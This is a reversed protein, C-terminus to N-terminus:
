LFMTSCRYNIVQIDNKTISCLVIFNRFDHDKTKIGTAVCPCSGLIYLLNQTAGIYDQLNIQLTHSSQLM